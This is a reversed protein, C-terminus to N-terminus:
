KRETSTKIVRPMEIGDYIEMMMFKKLKYESKCTDINIVGIVVFIILKKSIAMKVVEKQDRNV